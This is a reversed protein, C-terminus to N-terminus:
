LIFEIGAHQQSCGIEVFPARWSLACFLPGKSFWNGHLQNSDNHVVLGIIM